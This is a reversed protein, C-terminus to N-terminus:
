QILGSADFAVRIMARQEETLPLLPRRVAGGAQGLLEQWYKQQAHPTGSPRTAALARRVPELSDRVQRAEDYRGDLALATYQHIRRDRATQYLLPPVSCLYLRWNLEIINDLWEAESSSSVILSNRAIHTLESYMARPVSYKIAVVNPCDVAIRACTQPTMLYGADPHSWMVVGLGLRSSLHRYYEYVIEQVNEGFHLMPSHIVVYDAGVGQAHEALEIVTDLNQDSCSMMVSGNSRYERAADVAIACLRKREEVSMSFFEGQKGGIFIGAIELEGLWHRVNRRFGAEDLALTQTFPTPAAAWVGTLYQQAYDRAAEPKYKM